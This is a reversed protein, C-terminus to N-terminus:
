GDLKNVEVSEQSDDAKVSKFSEVSTFTLNMGSPRQLFTAPKIPKPPPM